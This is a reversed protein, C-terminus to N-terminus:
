LQDLKLEKSKFQFLSNDFSYPEFKAIILNHHLCEYAKWSDMLAIGTYGSEDLEKQWTRILRFPAHQTGHAQLFRCLLPNLYQQIYSFKTTYVKEFVKLILSLISLAQYSDKDFSNEKKHYTNNRGIKFLRLFCWNCCFRKDM